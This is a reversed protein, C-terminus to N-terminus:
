AYSGGDVSVGVDAAAVTVEGPDISLDGLWSVYTQAEEQTLSENAAALSFLRDYLAWMREVVNATDIRSRFLALLQDRRDSSPAQAAGELFEEDAPKGFVLGHFSWPSDAVGASQYAEELRRLCGALADEAGNAGDADSDDDEPTAQLAELRMQGDSIWSGYRERLWADARDEAEM